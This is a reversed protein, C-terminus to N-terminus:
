AASRSHPRRLPPSVRDHLIAAAADVAEVLAREADVGVGAEGFSYVIARRVDALADGLEAASYRDAIELIVAARRTAQRGFYGTM